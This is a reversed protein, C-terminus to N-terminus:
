NSKIKNIIDTTSIHTYYPILYFIDDVDVYFEKQKALDSLNAFGHVIYDIKHKKVFEKTVKLPAGLIVESVYKVSNVLMYRDEENYIPKRKYSTADNDSIVGVILEVPGAFFEKAKRLSEIHGRHFLDFIGDIYVRKPKKIDM